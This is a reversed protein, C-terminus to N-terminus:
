FFSFFSLMLMLQLSFYHLNNDLYGEITGCVNSGGVVMDFDESHERIIPVVKLSAFVEFVILTVSPKIM